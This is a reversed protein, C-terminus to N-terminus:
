DAYEHENEEKWIRRFRQTQVDYRWRFAMHRTISSDPEDIYAIHGVFHVGADGPFNRKHDHDWRHSPDSFRFTRREGPAIKEILPVHSPFTVDPTQLFIPYGIEPILEIGLHCRTIWCSTAGTNAVVYTVVIPHEEPDTVLSSADRLVLRPRHTAKFEAQALDLSKQTLRGQEGSTVWLTLTFIAIFITAIATLAGNNQDIFAGECRLLLGIKSPRSIPPDFGSKEAQGVQNGYKAACEQYSFSYTAAWASLALILIAFLGVRLVNHRSLM